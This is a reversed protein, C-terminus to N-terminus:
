ADAGRASRRRQDVGRWHVLRWVVLSWALSWALASGWLVELWAGDVLPISLRLSAATSFLLALAMMCPWEAQPRGKARLIAQRLMIGSALCGLAGVTVAHLVLSPTLGAMRTAALSLMGIGLWAYGFLLLLLDWREHLRWPSWRWLRVLLVLGAVMLLLASPIALLPWPEGLTSLLLLGLLIGELRPQVGAGTLGHRTMLHGNVAPAIVRGGMFTMLLMLWFVGQHLLARSTSAEGSALQGVLSAAALGCFIALLPSLLRNRWKKAALFRPVVWWAVLLAFAADAPGSALALSDDWIRLRGVLWLSALLTLRWRPLPGLLYGTIVALAFGFLLERGHAMPTALGPMAASGAYMAVLSLPVMLAAHVAALPFFWQWAPLRSGPPPRVKSARANVLM